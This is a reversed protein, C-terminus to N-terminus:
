FVLDLETLRYSMADVSAGFFEVLTRKEGSARYTVLYRAVNLPNSQDVRSRRRTRGIEESDCLRGVLPSQSRIRDQDFIAKFQKRVAREPMLLEAAFVDAEREVIRVTPDSNGFKLKRISRKRFAAGGGCSLTSHHLIIHGIEHALTYNRDGKFTDEMKISILKKEMDVEGLVPEGTYLDGYKAQVIFPTENLEWGLVNRVYEDLRVPYFTETDPRGLYDYLERLVGKARERANERFYKPDSKINLM